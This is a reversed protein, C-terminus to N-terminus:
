LRGQRRLWGQYDRGMEEIDEREHSQRRRLRAEAFLAAVREAEPCATFGTDHFADVDMGGDGTYHKVVYGGFIVDGVGDKRQRTVTPALVDALDARELQVRDPIEHITVAQRDTLVYCRQRANRISIWPFCILPM